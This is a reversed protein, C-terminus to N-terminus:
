KSELEARQKVQFFLHCDTASAPPSAQRRSDSSPANVPVGHRGPREGWHVFPSWRRGSARSFTYRGSLSVKFSHFQGLKSPKRGCAHRRPGEGRHVCTHIGAPRTQQGPILLLPCRKCSPGLPQGELVQLAFFPSSFHLSPLASRLTTSGHLPSLAATTRPLFIPTKARSDLLRRLSQPLRAAM